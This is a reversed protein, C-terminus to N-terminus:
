FFICHIEDYLSLKLKLNYRTESGGSENHYAAKRSWDGNLKTSSLTVLITGIKDIKIGYKIM